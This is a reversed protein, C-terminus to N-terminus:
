SEIRMAMGALGVVGGGVVADAEVSDVHGARHCQAVVASEVVDADSSGVGSGTVAM